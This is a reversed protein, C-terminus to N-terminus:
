TYPRRHRFSANVPQSTSARRVFHRRSLFCCRYCTYAAPLPARSLVVAFHNPKCAGSDYGGPVAPGPCFVFSALVNVAYGRRIAIAGLRQRLRCSPRYLRCCYSSTGLPGTLELPGFRVRHQGEMSGDSRKCPFGLVTHRRSADRPTAGCMLTPVSVILMTLCGYTSQQRAGFFVFCSPPNWKSLDGWACYRAHM